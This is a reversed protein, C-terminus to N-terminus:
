RSNQTQQYRLTDNQTSINQALVVKSLPLLMINEERVEAAETKDNCICTRLDFKGIM